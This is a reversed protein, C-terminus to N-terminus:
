GPPSSATSRRGATGSRPPARMSGGPASGPRVTRRPWSVDLLLALACVTGAGLATGGIADTFYHWRLGIVGVAVVIVALWAVAPIAWRLVTVLRPTPAQSPAPAPRPALLLVTLASALATIASTHGSPYSLIGEYTRHFLSKLLADNLGSAVPVALLALGAGRLWGRALCALAAILSVGGAPVLTAPYAMRLAVVPHGAFWALVPADIAQDVRDATSEHAVLVGLVIVVVACCALLGGALPRAPGVLLFRGSRQRM